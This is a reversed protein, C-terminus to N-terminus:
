RVAVISSILGPWRFDYQAPGDQRDHHWGVILLCGDGLYELTEMTQAVEFFHNDYVITRSVGGALFYLCQTKGFYTEDSLFPIRPLCCCYSTTQLFNRPFEGDNLIGVEFIGWFFDAIDYQRNDLVLSIHDIATTKTDFLRGADEIKVM